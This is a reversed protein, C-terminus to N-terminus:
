CVLEEPVDVVDGLVSAVYCRMAAELPTSGFQPNDGSSDAKWPNDEDWYDLCICRLDIIPGGQSWNSSPEWIQQNRKWPFGECEDFAADYHNRLLFGVYPDDPSVFGYGKVTGKGHVTCPALNLAHAVAWDLAVGSLESTKIEM